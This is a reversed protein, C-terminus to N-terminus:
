SHHVGCCGHVWEYSDNAWPSDPDPHGIGCPCTREMIGRDDRWHQPFSRMSHDSRNHITCRQGKCLAPDHVNVLYRDSHELKWRRDGYASYDERGLRWGDLFDGDLVPVYGLLALTLRAVEYTNFERADHADTAAVM